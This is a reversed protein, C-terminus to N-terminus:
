VGDCRRDPYDVLYERRLADAFSERLCEVDLSPDMALFTEEGDLHLLISIANIENQFTVDAITRGVLLRRIPDLRATRVEPSRLAREVDNMDSLDGM